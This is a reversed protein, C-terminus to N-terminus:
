RHKEAGECVGRGGMRHPLLPPHVTTAPLFKRLRSDLASPLGGAPGAKQQGPWPLQLWSCSAPPALAPTRECAHRPAKSKPDGPM